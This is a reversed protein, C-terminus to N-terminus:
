RAFRANHWWVARSLAGDAAFQFPVSLVLAGLAAGAARQDGRGARGRNVVRAATVVGGILGADTLLAGIRRLGVARRASAAASDAGPLLPTPGRLASEISRPWFFNLNAVRPGDSGRVVALGNWTPVIGLACARYDCAAATEQGRAVRATPLLALAALTAVFSLGRSRPTM